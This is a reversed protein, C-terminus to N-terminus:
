ELDGMYRGVRTEPIGIDNASIVGYPTKLMM